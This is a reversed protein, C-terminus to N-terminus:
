AGAEKCPRGVRSARYVAIECSEPWVRRIVTEADPARWRKKSASLSVPRVGLPRRDLADLRDTCM